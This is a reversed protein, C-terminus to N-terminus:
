FEVRFGVEYRRPTQWDTADGVEIPVDNEDTGCGNIAWCLRNPRETSFVNYVTGILVFRVGGAMFGKSLQLDLQYDSNAERSGRPELFHVGWSVEPNVAADEWPAWRFPSSWFGDFAITWDENLNIFGNLKIRHARHDGQFGYINDYHWPYLDVVAGANQTYEISGKSSSYTYSALLTLWSLRRTEFRLVLGRYDRRLAPINATIFYECSADAAPEPWNGNCTDDVVDRTKKDIFSLEISSRSGLEREFAIIWEDAYTARLGPDARGPESSYRESPSLVWGYPDWGASDTRYDWGLDAALNACESASGVPIGLALPLVGSCSYWRYSPEVVDRVWYPLTLMNPHMFRGWSARVVNKADGRVDWALGLRPQLKHLDAIEVGTNTDYGVEDYRLGLKLTLTRGPRWADQLFVGALTGAYDTPGSTYNEWMFWPRTGDAEIDNFFFGVGGDVCREGNPTGTSCNTATFSLDSYELGGKIEHSGALDDIFWTLDTTLDLRGDDWNQQNGYSETSLRTSYNYHGIIALDGHKPSGDSEFEFRGATTAWLLRDSMMATLEAAGATSSDRWTSAAEPMIWRSANANDNTTPNDTGKVALRWAPSIQWTLKALYSRNDEVRTTPSGIPTFSDEIRQASAFFWLRDRVIPGGLTAGAVWHESALLDSDFHSGSEQFSDSRYRGDFTGSFRNGGSRTVLNIIGGTARGYEAEFGGAQLQIESIADFNIHTTATAMVPDTIDMGDIIYANEGITSGLVRPQEVGSWQGGGAVGAAQNVVMSYTRNNSGIASGQMYDARFVQGTSVQTPDVVPTEDVVEIEGSFPGAPMEITLVAAGGLPVTVLNREQPIFGAREARVTYDGPALLLFLYEGLDNTTKTQAGGILAPSSITISVGPLAMGSGDVTTGMLRGSTTQPWAATATMATLVTLLVAIRNM